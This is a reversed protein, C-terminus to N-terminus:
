PMLFDHRLRQTCNAELYPFLLLEDSGIGVLKEPYGMEGHEFIVFGLSTVHGAMM